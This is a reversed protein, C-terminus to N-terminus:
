TRGDNKGQEARLRSFLNAVAQRNHEGNTPRSDALKPVPETLGARLKGIDQRLQKLTPRQQEKEWRWDHFWVDKMFLQIDGARYGAGYLAKVAEAVNIKDDEHIVKHDWGLADCIAAYMAQKPTLAEKGPEEKLPEKKIPEEKENIPHEGPSCVSNMHHVPQEYPSRTQEHPSCAPPAAERAYHAFNAPWMDVITVNDREWEGGGDIRILELELLEQKAKSVAGTSMRCMAALERTSYYCVGDDGAVKKLQLYLRMAILSVDMELIINPIETRYRHLSSQDKVQSSKKPTAM